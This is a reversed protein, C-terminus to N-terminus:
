VDQMKGSFYTEYASLDLMGNGSLNFLIVRKKGAERAKVAEEVVSAIAHASEPAPVIGETRAFLTAAEFVKTQHYAEAEMLGLKLAHTVM